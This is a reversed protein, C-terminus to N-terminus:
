SITKFHRVRDNKPLRTPRRPSACPSLHAAASVSSEGGGPAANERQWRLSDRVLKSTLYQTTAETNPDCCSLLLPNSPSGSGDERLREAEEEARYSCDRRFLNREDEEIVNYPLIPLIVLVLSSLPYLYSNSVHRFLAARATEPPMQSDFIEHYSASM